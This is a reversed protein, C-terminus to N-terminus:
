EFWMLVGDIVRQILGGDNVAALAVLPREAISEGSLDVQVKGFQQGKAAPAVIAGNVEMQASLAQYQGRPITVFLSQGLGLPLVDADGKWVRAEKLVEGAAYLKHTEFFRFGYNLLAQSQDARAEESDTGLIVAILRMDGRKASSVLCYGAAETHGTKIGDVTEDRWLLKNRNWQPINNYTYQKEKYVAYHEPFEEILAKSLTAIDRASMYHEPDPWGTSNVFHSNTLGLQEAYHNM